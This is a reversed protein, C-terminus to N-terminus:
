IEREKIFHKGMSEVFNHLNKYDDVSVEKKAKMSTVVISLQNLRRELNDSTVTNNKITKTKM